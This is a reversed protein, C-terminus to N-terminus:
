SRLVNTYACLMVATGYRRDFMILRTLQRKADLELLVRQVAEDLASDEPNEPDIVKFWNDFIDVSVWYVLWKVMPERQSSFLLEENPISSVGFGQAPSFTRPASPPLFTVSDGAVSDRGSIVRGVIKRADGVFRRIRSSM